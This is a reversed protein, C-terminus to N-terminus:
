EDDVPLGSPKQHLFFSKTKSSPISIFSRPSGNFNFMNAISTATQDTTGLRGLNWNDEVFRVISGFEYPTHSIENEGVYPSVVLMPVRFGPGGQKDLKPPKVEDYFGGWDDWVIIIATSDWYSSDGIANVVSAVWSPGTDSNYGSHDSNVGDPIVWSMSPLSGNTIDAFINTEPTSIHANWETQNGFVSDIVLFANWMAGTNGQYAPTYYKWSVYKADLLNQLTKYNGSSPFDSTCPFPGTKLYKLSTTILETTSGTGSPCGWPTKTPDDILSESSTLETGGRILDQHATFSGSGQTQFMHDAIAYYNAIDWYPVVDSPQVYQYPAAGEQKGNVKSRIQNFADMHGNRYATKYGSYLHLLTSTAELPVEKLAIPQTTGGVREYGTTTGDTGNFTAFLDNFTRNEQVMVIIHQIPTSGTGSNRQPGAGGPVATPASGNCAALSLGAALLCLRVVATRPM